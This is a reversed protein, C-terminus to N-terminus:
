CDALYVCVEHCSCVRWISLMNSGEQLQLYLGARAEWVRTCNKKPKVDYGHGGTSSFELTPVLSGSIRAPYLNAIPFPSVMALGFCSLCRKGAQWVEALEEMMVKMVHDMMHCICPLWAMPTCSHGPDSRNVAADTTVATVDMPSIGSERLVGLLENLLRTPSPLTPYPNPKPLTPTPNTDAPCAMNIPRTPHTPHNTPGSCVLLSCGLPTVCSRVHHGKM